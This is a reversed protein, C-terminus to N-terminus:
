SRKQNIQFRQQNKNIEIIEENTLQSRELSLNFAKMMEEALRDRLERDDNLALHTSNEELKRRLRKGNEESTQLYFPLNLHEGTLLISGHQLVANKLLRQASGVVKKGELELETGASSAFCLPNHGAHLKGNKSLVVQAGENQLTNLIANHAKQYIIKLLKKGANNEVPVILCYTIEGAHLIARGGTPRRVVEVGDNFCREFDIDESRQHFGLSITPKLWTYLRFIIDNGPKTLIALTYDCAMNFGGELAPSNIYRINM